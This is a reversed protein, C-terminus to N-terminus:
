SLHQFLPFPIDTTRVNFGLHQYRDRAKPTSAELYFTADPAHAFGERVLMSLFGPIGSGLCGGFRFSDTNTKEPILRLVIIM